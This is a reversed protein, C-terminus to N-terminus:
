IRCVRLLKTCPFSYIQCFCTFIEVRPKNLEEYEFTGNFTGTDHKCENYDMCFNYITSNLLDCSLDYNLKELVNHM